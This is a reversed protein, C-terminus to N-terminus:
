TSVNGHLSAACHAHTAVYHLQWSDSPHLVIGCRHPLSVRMSPLWRSKGGWRVSLWTSGAGCLPATHPHLTCSSSQKPAAALRNPHPLLHHKCSLVSQLTISGPACLPAVHPSPTTRHSAPPATLHNPHHLSHRKCSLASELTTIRPNAHSPVTNGIHPVLSGAMEHM